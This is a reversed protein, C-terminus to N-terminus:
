RAFNALVSPTVSASPPAIGLLPMEPKVEVCIGMAPLEVVRVDETAAGVPVITPVESVCVSVFLDM